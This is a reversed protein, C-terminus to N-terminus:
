CTPLRISNYPSMCSMAELRHGCISAAPNTQGNKKRSALIMAAAGPQQLSVCTTGGHKFGPGM